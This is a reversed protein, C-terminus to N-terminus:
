GVYFLREWLHRVEPVGKKEQSHRNVRGEYAMATIVSHNITIKDKTRSETQTGKRYETTLNGGCANPLEAQGDM